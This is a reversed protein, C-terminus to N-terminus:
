VDPSIVEFVDTATATDLVTGTAGGEWGTRATVVAGYTGEPAEATVTWSGTTSGTEGPALTLDSGGGGPVGEGGPTTVSYGVQFTGGSAGTNEITVTATQTEGPSFTGGEPEFAVIAAGVASAGAGTEPETRIGAGDTTGPEIAGGVGTDAGAAPETGATGTEAPTGTAAGTGTSATPAGRGTPTEGEAPAEGTTESIADFGFTTRRTETATADDRDSGGTGISSCGALVTTVIGALGCVTRRKRRDM